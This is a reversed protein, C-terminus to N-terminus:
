DDEKREQFYALIEALFEASCQKSPEFLGTADKKIHIEPDYDHNVLIKWRDTYKRNAKTGHYYHRIVGPVYGVRFNKVREQFATVTRKYGDTSSSNIAKLGNSILSLAMVQDGSGLIAEDYLGGMKDYAKRTCAWAYGPHWFNPPKGNYSHGKAFQYGFSNFITMTLEERDMDVAHSFLQVIDKCGNLVKLTDVAWSPSEFEIDSDIWAMAKWNPPLLTRVGVNIMSEKTWIPSADTRLQLHRKNDSQTIIYKDAHKGYGYALEVIYLIVNTEEKDFRNIFEKALIYRRAYQCPNSLVIVVHLKDEVPDNNLIADKIINQNYTIFDIEIGNIVTM